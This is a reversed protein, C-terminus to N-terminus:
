DVWDDAVDEANAVTVPPETEVVQSAPPAQLVANLHRAHSEL